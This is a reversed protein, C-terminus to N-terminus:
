ESPSISCYLSLNPSHVEGTTQIETVADVTTNSSIIEADDVMVQTTQNSASTSNDNAMTQSSETSDEPLSSLKTQIEETTVTTDALLTFSETDTTNVALFSDDISQNLTANTPSISQKVITDDVSIEVEDSDPGTM